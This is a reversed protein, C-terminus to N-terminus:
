FGFWVSASHHGCVCTERTFNWVSLRIPLLALCSLVIFYVVICHLVFRLVNMFLFTGAGTQGYALITCNFGRFLDETVAQRAGAKVYAEEQTSNDDLVADLEFWRKEAGEPRVELVEPDKPIELVKGNVNPLSSVIKKSGNQLEYKALPRIRAVVRVNSSAPAPAKKPGGM